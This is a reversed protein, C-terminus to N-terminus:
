KTVSFRRVAFAADKDNHLHLLYMGARLNEVSISHANGKVAENLVEQGLLDYVKINKVQHKDWSVNLIDQTPTPYLRLDLDAPEGESISTIVPDQTFIYNLDGDSYMVEALIYGKTKNWWAFTSDTGENNDILTWNNLLANHAWTSDINYDITKTRLSSFTGSPISIDGWADVEVSQSSVSKYRLSDVLPIQTFPVTEDIIITGSGSDGYNLPFSIVGVAPSLPVVIPSGTGLDVALGHLLLGAATNEMYSYTGELSSIICLNSNPFSAGFPTNNPVEFDVTDILHVNLGTYDWTQNVGAPGENIGPSPLTDYGMLYQTGTAGVDTSELTIQAYGWQAFFFSILIYGFRKM